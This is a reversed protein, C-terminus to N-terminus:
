CCGGTYTVEASGVNGADHITVSAFNSPRSHDWGRLLAARATGTTVTNNAAAGVSAGVPQAKTEAHPEAASVTAHLYASCCEIFSDISYKGREEEVTKLAEEKSAGTVDNTDFTMGYITDLLDKLEGTPLASYAAKEKIATVKEYRNFTNGRGDKVKIVLTEKTLQFYEPLLAAVTLAFAYLCSGVTRERRLGRLYTYRDVLGSTGSITYTGQKRFLGFDIANFQWENTSPNFFGMINELKIDIPLFSADIITKYQKALNSIARVLCPLSTHSRNTLKGFADGAIDAGPIRSTILYHFTRSFCTNRRLRSVAWAKRGLLRNIKVDTILSNQLKSKSKHISYPSQEHVFRAFFLDEESENLPKFLKGQKESSLPAQLKGKEPSFYPQGEIIWVSRKGDTSFYREKEEDFCDGAEDYVRLEWTKWLGCCSSNKVAWECPWYVKGKGSRCYAKYINAETAASGAGASAVDSLLHTTKNSHPPM